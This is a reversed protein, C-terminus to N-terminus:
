KKKKVKIAFAKKGYASAHIIKGTKAHRYWKVFIVEYDANRSM